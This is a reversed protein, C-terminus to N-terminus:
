YYKISKSESAGIFCAGIVQGMEDTTWEEDSLLMEKFIIYSTSSSYYDVFCKMSRAVTNTPVESFAEYDVAQTMFVSFTSAKEEKTWPAFLPMERAPAPKPALEFKSLDVGYAVSPFSMSLAIALALKKFM